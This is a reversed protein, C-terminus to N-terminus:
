KCGCLFVGEEESKTTWQERVELGHRSLLKRVLLPTYRHSFFLRITDGARFGFVENAVEIRRSRTFQFGAVIRKLEFAEM